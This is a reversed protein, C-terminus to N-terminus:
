LNIENLYSELKDDFWNSLVSYETSNFTELLTKLIGQNWNECQKVQIVKTKTCLLFEMKTEKHEFKYTGDKNDEIDFGYDSLPVVLSDYVSLSRLLKDELNMDQNYLNELGWYYAKGINILQETSLYKKLDDEISIEFYDINGLTLILRNYFGSFAREDSFEELYYERWVEVGSPYGDFLKTKLEAILETTNEGDISITQELVFDSNAMGWSTRVKMKTNM